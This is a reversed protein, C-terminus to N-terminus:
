NYQHFKIDLGICIGVKVHTNVNKKRIPYGNYLFAFVLRGNNKIVHYNCINMNKLNLKGDFCSM